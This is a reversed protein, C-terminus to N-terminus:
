EVRGVIFHAKIISQGDDQMELRALQFRFTAAFEAGSSNTSAALHLYTIRLYDRQDYGGSEIVFALNHLDRSM